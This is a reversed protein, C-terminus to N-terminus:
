KIRHPYTDLFVNHTIAGKFSETTTNKTIDPSLKNWDKITQCFFSFTYSDKNCQCLFCSSFFFFFFFLVCCLIHQVGSYTFLCFYRLYSVLCGVFLQLNLRPKHPFRLPCWLVSSLVDLCKIPCCLFFGYFSSCCPGLWFDPPSSLHEHLIILAQEKYSVRQTVWIFWLYGIQPGGKKKIKKIWWKQTVSESYVTNFLKL